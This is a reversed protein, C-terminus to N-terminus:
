IKDLKLPLKEKDAELGTTISSDATAASLKLDQQRSSLVLKELEVIACHKRKAQTPMHFDVQKIIEKSDTEAADFGVYLTELFSRFTGWQDELDKIRKNADITLLMDILAESTAVKIAESDKEAQEILCNWETKITDWRNLQRSIDIEAKKKAKSVDTPSILVKKTGEEEINKLYRELATSYEYKYVNLVLTAEKRAEVWYNDVENDFQALVIEEAESKILVDRGIKNYSENSEQLAALKAELKTADTEISYKDMKLFNYKAGSEIILEKKLVNAIRTLAGKAAARANKAEKVEKSNQLVEMAAM